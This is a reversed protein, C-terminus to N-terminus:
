VRYYIYTYPTISLRTSQYKHKGQAEMLFGLSVYCFSRSWRAFSPFTKRERILLLAARTQHTTCVCVCVWCKPHSSIYSSSVRWVFLKRPNNNVIVAGWDTPPVQHAGVREGIRIKPLLNVRRSLPPRGLLLWLIKVRVPILPFYAMDMTLKSPSLNNSWLISTSCLKSSAESM